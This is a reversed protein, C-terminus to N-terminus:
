VTTLSAHQLQPLAAQGGPGGRPAYALSAALRSAALDRSRQIEVAMRAATGAVCGLQLFFALSEIMPDSLMAAVFQGLLAAVFGDIVIKGPHRSKRLGIRQIMVGIRWALWMVMAIGFIGANALLGPVLSSCRFSGWGVGLGSTQAVTGIAANDLGTREQYSDSDGKTVTAIYVQHVSDLLSPKLIFIPGIGVASVGVIVVMTKMLRGVAAHDGRLWAFVTTLPVGAALTLLGTTSTSLMMALISLGLLLNVRMIRYGQANLWLCCFFLGSLYFAFGAPESFTGQIRPVPGIMQKVIAWGPNSQIIDWPFPVNAVRAAFQWFGLGVALYGGLLYARLISRYPISARSMFLGACTAVVVNLILYLTQTVNGSTFTLPVYGPNLLDPREPWVMVKGQFAQPLVFISMLAYLLLGFLPTLTWLVRGEGSYRMGVCYQAVLYGVFLLGPVLAPQLGFSGGLVLAAGAEFIAAIFALQLLRVPNMCWLLSLPILILGLVTIGM